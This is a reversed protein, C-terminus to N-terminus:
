IAVEGSLFGIGGGGAIKTMKVFKHMTKRRTAKPQLIMTPKKNTEEMGNKRM